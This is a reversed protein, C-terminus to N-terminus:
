RSLWPNCAITFRWPWQACEGAYGVGIRASEAINEASPIQDGYELWIPGPPDTLDTGTWAKKIGMAQALTGPGATLRKELREMGRRELMLPQGHVPELARILVASGVDAKGTVINFLHHIGYCLYIYAHGGEMFMVETRKTRRGGYAHCAKDGDQHYAETEVIRGVTREGDIETILHQGLLERSVQLVDSRTFFSKPIRKQPQPM